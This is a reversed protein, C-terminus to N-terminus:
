WDFRIEVGITRPRNLSVRRTTPLDIAYSLPLATEAHKNFANDIFLATDWGKHKAGVRMNALSYGARDYYNSAPTFNNYQHTTTSYDLRAYGLGANGFQRHYDASASGMWKPTNELPDGKAGQAGVITSILKAVNYAAGLTLSLTSTPEYHMELEGGESSATGFNGTFNLGCTPLSINQQINRWDIYFVAGNVTLRNDLWATKAGLEYSWLTDAKFSAPVSSLGLATLDVNCIAGQLGPLPGGPRFGKAATAYALVDPALRYSLEFKPNTGRDYSSGGAATYGGVFVGKFVGYDYQAVRFIRAGLTAQVQQTVDVNIEGYVARQMEQYSDIGQYFTQDGFPTGFAANYGAPIPQNFASYNDQRSYYFGLLGHVPGLSASGRIEETFAHNAFYNDNPDPYVYSQPVPSLSVYIVKSEDEVADFTRDQYSTSSTVHLGQISGEVAVVFLRLQDTSPESVDRTQIPNAFSGPPDDFSFPAGLHTRQIWVSATVSLNESPRIKVSLRMGYTKETNVNKTVPGALSGLYNNPDIPYRDIYGDQDRFFAIARLAVRGSVLPENLLSSVEYNLGGGQTNSLTSAVTNQTALLDPQRTVYKVTGGMSSAGYLTGQPGRLVEVRELDFLAPDMAQIPTDDIYYGVTPAGGSSSVGRIIIQNQGPGATLVNLGPVERAIDALTQAGSRQLTEASVVTISIPVDQLQEPVKRATVLIETIWATTKDTESTAAPAQPSNGPDLPSREVVGGFVNTCWGSILIPLALSSRGLRRPL